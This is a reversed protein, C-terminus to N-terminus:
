LDNADDSDTVDGEAGAPVDVAASASSSRNRDRVFLFCLVAGLCVVTLGGGVKMLRMAALQNYSMSDPDFHFCILRLKDSITGIAGDAAKVLTLRVTKEPFKVGKLYQSINGKPTAIVLGAEHAYKQSKPDWRYGFGVADTFEKIALPKGTLLHFGDRQEPHGYGVVMSRKKEEALLHDENPDISVYVIEYDVGAVLGVDKIADVMGQSVLGCLMPCGYYGIQILVPKHGSFYDGLHVTKGHDDVFEADLPLAGNLHETFGIGKTENPEAGNRLLGDGPSYTPSIEARAVPALAALACLATM